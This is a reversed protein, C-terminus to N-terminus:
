RASRVAMVEAHLPGSLPCVRCCAAAPTLVRARQPTCVRFCHAATLIVDARQSVTGSCGGYGFDMGDDTYLHAILQVTSSYPAVGDVSSKPVKALDATDDCCQTFLFVAATVSCRHVRRHM